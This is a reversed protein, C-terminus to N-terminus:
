SPQRVLCLLRFVRFLRRLFLAAVFSLSLAICFAVVVALRGLFDPFFFFDFFFFLKADNM